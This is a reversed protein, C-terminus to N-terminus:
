YALIKMMQWLVIYYYSTFFSQKSINRSLVHILSVKYKLNALHLGGKVLQFLDGSIKIFTSKLKHLEIVYSVCFNLPTTYYNAFSLNDLNDIGLLDVRIWCVMFWFSFNMVYFGSSWIKLIQQNYKIKCSKFVFQLVYM